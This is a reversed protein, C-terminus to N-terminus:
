FFALKHGDKELGHQSMTITSIRGDAYAYNTQYISTSVTIKSIAKNNYVFGTVSSGTTGTYDIKQLTSDPNYRYVGRATLDKFEVSRLLATKEEPNDEPTEQNKDCATLLLAIFAMSLIPKLFLMLLINSADTEFSNGILLSM